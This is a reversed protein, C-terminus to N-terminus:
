NPGLLANNLDTNNTIHLKHQGKFVFCEPKGVMALQHNGFNNDRNSATSVGTGEPLALVRTHPNLATFERLREQRTEGNHNPMSVETYHPNIQCPLLQLATFSPPEVIPMDNTTKLSLGAVNAGASWGVYKAGAEVKQQIQDVLKHQYLKALLQFTNGGGVIIGDAEAIVQRPHYDQHVGIIKLKPLAAQVTKLYDNRPITVGAYPIFVIKSCAALHHYIDSQATQLFESNAVRSSSLLLLSM